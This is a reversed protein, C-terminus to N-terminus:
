IENEKKTYKELSKSSFIYFRALRRFGQLWFVLINKRILMLNIDM